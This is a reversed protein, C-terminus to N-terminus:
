KLRKDKNLDVGMNILICGICLSFLFPFHPTSMSADFMSVVLLPTSFIILDNNGIIKKSSKFLYWYFVIFLVLHILGGRAYINFFYNHVSENKGDAGAYWGNNMVPIKEFFGVGFFIRDNEFSDLLVDQWIQLRFNINGDSSFIRGDDLFNFAMLDDINKILYFSLFSEVSTNKTELLESIVDSNLIENYEVEADVMLYSSLYFLLICIVAIFIRKPVSFNITKKIQLFELLIFIAVAITAGRSKYIFLPLFFACLLFFYENSYKYKKNLYRNNLFVTLVFTVLIDSAKLFDFKDSYIKFFNIIFEPYYVASLIYTGLLTFNLIILHRFNFKLYKVLVGGLFIYSLLWIYSSYKYTYTNFISKYNILIYLFTYIFILYTILYTNKEFFINVLNKNSLLIISSLFAIGVLYEGVRFGFLNLGMFPRGFLLTLLFFLVSSYPIAISRIYNKLNM